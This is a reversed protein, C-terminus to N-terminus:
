GAMYSCSRCSPSSSTFLIVQSLAPCFHDVDVLAVHVSRRSLVKFCFVEGYDIMFAIQKIELNVLRKAELAVAEEIYAVVVVVVVIEGVVVYDAAYRAVGVYRGGFAEELIISSLLPANRQAM